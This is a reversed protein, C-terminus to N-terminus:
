RWLTQGSSDGRVSGPAYSGSRQLLEPPLEATHSVPQNSSPQFAKSAPTVSQSQNQWESNIRAAGTASSEGPTVNAITGPKPQGAIPSTEASFSNFGTSPYRNSNGSPNSAPPTAAVSNGPTMPQFPSNVTAPNSNPTTSNGASVNNGQPEPSVSGSRKAVFAPPQTVPLQFEGKGPAPASGAGLDQNVLQQSIPQLQRSPASKADTAARPNNATAGGPVPSPNLALPASLAQLPDVRNAPNTMPSSNPTGAAMPSPSNGASWPPISGGPAPSAGSTNGLTNGQTNGSPRSFAFAGGAAPSSPTAPPSSPSSAQTSPTPSNNKAAPFGFANDTKQALAEAAKQAADNASETLGRSQQQFQGVVENANKNLKETAARANQDLQNALAGASQELSETATKALEYPKRIPQAAAGASPAAAPPAAATGAAQAIASPKTGNEKSAAIPATPRALQSPATVASASAEGPIENPKRIANGTAAVESTSLDFHESPPALDKDKKKFMAFDPWKPTPLKATQCGTELVTLLVLASLWVSRNM